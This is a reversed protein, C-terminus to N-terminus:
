EPLPHESQVQQLLATMGEVSFDPSRCYDLIKREAAKQQRVIEPLAAAVSAPVCLVGHEDGHLLDGTKVTMDGIQAPAGAEVVHVYAHSVCVFSAFTRFGLRRLAPLDRVAGNTVVGACGLARCISAHVEGVLSGTHPGSDVDQVVLVRPEPVALFQPAWDLRDTYRVGRVKPHSTGVQLTFAYGLLPPL